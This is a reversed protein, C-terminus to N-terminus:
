TAAGLQRRATTGGHAPGHAPPRVCGHSCVCPPAPLQRWAGAGGATAMSVCGSCRPWTGVALRRWARTRTNGGGGRAAMQIHGACCTLPRRRRCRLCRGSALPLRQSEAVHAYRPSRRQRCGLVHGLEVCPCGSARAWQLVSLRGGGEAAAVLASLRGSETTLWGAVFTRPLGCAIAWELKRLSSDFASRIRTTTRTLGDSLRAAAVAQRLERCSLSAALEGDRPLRTAVLALLEAPLDLLEAM